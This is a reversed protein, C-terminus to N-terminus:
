GSSLPANHMGLLHYGSDVHIIEDTVARAPDSCLFAGVNGVEETSVNRGLPANKRSPEVDRSLRQPVQYLHYGSDVHIIEDTVARAPDSCLFTGVNTREYGLSNDPLSLLM